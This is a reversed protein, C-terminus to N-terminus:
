VAENELLRTLDHAHEPPARGLPAGQDQRDMLQQIGFPDAVAKDQESVAADAPGACETVEAHARMEGGAAQLLVEKREGSVATTRCAGRQGSSAFSSHSTRLPLANHVISSSRHGSM